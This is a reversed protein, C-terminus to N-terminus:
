LIDPQLHVKQLHKTRLRINHGPKKSLLECHPHACFISEMSGITNEATDQLCHAM